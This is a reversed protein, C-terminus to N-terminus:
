FNQLSSQLLTSRQSSELPCSSHLAWRKAPIAFHSGGIRRGEECVFLIKARARVHSQMCQSQLTIYFFAHSVRAHATCMITSHPLMLMPTSQKELTSEARHNGAIVMEM